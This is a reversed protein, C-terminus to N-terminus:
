CSTLCGSCDNVAYFCVSHNSGHLLSNCMSPLHVSTAQLVVTRADNLARRYEDILVHKVVDHQRVAQLRSFRFYFIWRDRSLRWMWGRWTTSICTDALRCFVMLIPRWCTMNLATLLPEARSSLWFLFQGNVAVSYERLSHQNIVLSWGKDKKQNLDLPTLTM